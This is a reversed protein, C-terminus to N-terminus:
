QYKHTFPLFTSIKELAAATTFIYIYIYIKKKPNM